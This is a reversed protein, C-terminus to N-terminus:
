MNELGLRHRRDAQSEGGGGGYRERAAGVIGAGYKGLQAVNGADKLYNGVKGLAPGIGPINELAHGLAGNTAGNAKDYWQKMEGVKGLAGGVFGGIKRAGKGIGAVIRGFLGM